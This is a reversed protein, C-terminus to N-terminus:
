PAVRVSARIPVGGEPRNVVMGVPKPVGPRALTVDLRQALRAIVLTLEMQALAFGICARPGKGFPMWGADIAAQQAADPDVFRDPRFELPADWVDPLRGSIYPSWMIMAGKKVRVPGLMLEREVQRPSFVGPPHLRLSERVVADAFRLNRLTSADCAEAPGTGFVADAEARLQDWVGPTGAARLVTWAIASSTTDYGAGILTNTQDRIESRSLSGEEILADLVDPADPRPERTRRDIEEYIVRDAARLAERARARRTYPLRHPLQRLGPQVAYAMAPEMLEGFEDARARFSDGFLVRIVIRRVLSRGYPYLDFTDDSRMSEDIITDTESVILPIWTDLRRRAFGPQAAMRRRRWEDGDSVIM